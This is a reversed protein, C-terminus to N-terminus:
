KIDMDCTKQMRRIFEKRGDFINYKLCGNNKREKMKMACMKHAQPLKHSGWFNKLSEKQANMEKDFLESM